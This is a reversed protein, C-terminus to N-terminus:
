FNLFKLITFYKNQIPVRLTQTFHTKKYYLLDNKKDSYIDYKSLIDRERISNNTQLKPIIFIIYRPTTTETNM